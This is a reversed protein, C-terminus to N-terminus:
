QENPKIRLFLTRLPKDDEGLVTVAKPNDLSWQAQARFTGKVGGQEVLSWNNGASRFYLVFECAPVGSNDSVSLFFVEGEHRQILTRCLVADIGSPDFRYRWRFHDVIEQESLATSPASMPTSHGLPHSTVRHSKVRHCASCLVLIAQFIAFQVLWKFKM